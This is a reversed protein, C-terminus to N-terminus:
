DECGGSGFVRESHNNHQGEIIKNRQKIEAQARMTKATAMSLVVFTGIFFLWVFGISIWIMWFLSM